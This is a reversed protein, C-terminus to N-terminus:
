NIEVFIRLDHHQAITRVTDSRYVLRSGYRLSSFSSHNPLAYLLDQLNTEGTITEFTFVDTDLIFRVTYSKNLFQYMGTISSIPDQPRLTPLEDTKGSTYHFRLRLVCYVVSERLIHYDALTRRDDLQKGAFTIQIQDPPIGEKDQITQKVNEITDSSAVDLYIMKYDLFRVFIFYGVDEVTLISKPLIKYYGITYNELASGNFILRQRDPSIPVKEFIKQKVSSVKNGPNVNVTVSTGNSNKVTIEFDKVQEDEAATQKDELVKKEVKKRNVKEKGVKKL